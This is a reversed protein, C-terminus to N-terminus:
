EELYAALLPLDDKHVSVTASLEPLRASAASAFVFQSLASRLNLHDGEDTDFWVPHRCRRVSEIFSLIDVNKRLKM